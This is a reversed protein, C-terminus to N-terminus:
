EIKMQTDGGATQYPPPLQLHQPSLSKGAGDQSGHTAVNKDWIPVGLSRFIRVAADYSSELQFNM